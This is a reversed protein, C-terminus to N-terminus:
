PRIPQSISIEQTGQFISWLMADILSEDTNLCPIREFWLGRSEALQRTDIDLDYLTELHDAPFGVPVLVIGDIYNKASHRARNNDSCQTNTSQITDFATLIDPGLWKINHQKTSGQSQYAIVSTPVKHGLGALYEILAYATQEVLRQYEFCGNSPLIPMSHATIVLASRSVKESGLRRFANTIATAWGHIVSPHNCWIPSYHIRPVARENASISLVAQRFAAFYTHSSFPAASIAILESPNSSDLMSRLVDEFSPSSYRSAVVCPIGSKEALLEAQARTTALLPSRGGIAEYRSQVKGVLADPAPKGGRINALFTPIDCL